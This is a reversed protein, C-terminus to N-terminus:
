HSKKLEAKRVFQLVFRKVSFTHQFHISLNFLKQRSATPNSYRTKYVQSIIINTIMKVATEGGFFKIIFKSFTKRGEICRASTFQNQSPYCKIALSIISNQWIFTFTPFIQSDIKIQITLYRGQKRM